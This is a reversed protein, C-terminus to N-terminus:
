SAEWGYVKIQYIIIRGYFDSCNMFVLKMSTITGTVTNKTMTTEDELVFDQMQHDDEVEEECLQEWSSSTPRQSTESNANVNNNTALSSTWVQMIEAVFGAQFQVQILQPQIPRGFDICLWHFNHNKKKTSSGGGHGSITRAPTGESSWCTQNNNTYDLVNNPGYLKFNKQLVSSAKVTTGLTPDSLLVPATTPTRTTTTTKTKTTTNVDNSSM